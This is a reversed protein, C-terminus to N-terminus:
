ALQLQREKIIETEDKTSLPIFYKSNWGDGSGDEKFEYFYEEQEEFGGIVTYVGGEKVMFTNSCEPHIKGSADICIVKM